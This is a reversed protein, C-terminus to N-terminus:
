QIVKEALAEDREKATCTLTDHAKELVEQYKKTMRQTEELEHEKSSM